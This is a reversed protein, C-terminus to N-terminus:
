ISGAAVTKLIFPVDNTNAKHKMQINIPIFFLEGKSMYM